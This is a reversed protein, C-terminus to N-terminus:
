FHRRSGGWHPVHSSCRVDERDWARDMPVWWQKRGSGEGLGRGGPGASVLEARLGAQFVGAWPEGGGM